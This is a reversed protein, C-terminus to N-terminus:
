GENESIVRRVRMGDSAVSWSYVSGGAAPDHALLFQQLEAAAQPSKALMIMFGGGGAGALKAGHLFPRAAELLGNIPANATNSDLTKNLEWHRDLLRGLHDWEGDQMAYAMEMALTKISHLVQVCATERALYRGVVQRLLGRAVRQIGTYYLVVLQEFESQRQPTWLLPQVRIRQQLGPGTVTLKAGPFIGGTQDQWGGGTTMRQELDMVHHALTRDSVPWGLMEALARLIVAAVISSTGLGSGMPLAVATRIEIGGGMRELTVSLPEEQQLLGYLCLASRPISFPDGPRPPLLLEERSRYHATLGDEDSICRVVPEPLRRITTRIPYAGNLLVAVNLVTGGWDLCFPPTDSWGGGLDIRAPGEVTVEQLAWKPATAPAAAYNGARVAREVLRFAATHAESAEDLLGAQGFFLNAAYYRSASETPAEAELERARACLAEGTASLAAINPANALLPRIDAGSDVLSLALIRWTAQLRRSRAAELARGDAYQAGGGLSLRESRRWKAVPYDQDLTLMWRACAWAEDVSAVPFLLANWLTWQEPPLGPWVEETRLGLAQVAGLLPRGFWTAAGQTVSVKADDEVGYVRLVIGSRGDPLEVPLQHVVTDEPIDIAGSIGDLGHLVSGSAARVHSNLHCEIVVSNAGLDAGGALVSDTVVGASRVGPQRTAGLRQQVAQLDGPLKDGTMLQRFLATTGIHTFDGSVISCWFPIDRLHGALTHLADSDQPGPTWQGTLAMTVHQYLDIEPPKGDAAVAQGIIGDGLRYIGDVPKLGALETLRAAADPAFRMLGSDLAVQDGALLGGSASLEALSPKQLFAYIRGQENTVYVGHQTGTVAPQRMAVGSVGPRDWNVEAADFTLIVDGSGVVLGSPLREVWATSLGLMEDFVTSTEGWPTSVPVASFLKGSLSYQPLRRSDGGAHIMLVRQASWWATLDFGPPAGGNQFLKVAMLAHLANLTAGGSGIRQDAVDPVVLYTVGSPIKGGDHRRQLEWEYRAAQRRSSATLIVATWWQPALSTNAVRAAYLRRARAAVSPLGAGTPQTSGSM